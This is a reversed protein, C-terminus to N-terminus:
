ILSILLILWFCRRITDAYMPVKYSGAVPFRINKTFISLVYIKHQLCFKITSGTPNGVFIVLPISRQLNILKVLRTQDGVQIISSTNYYGETKKVAVQLLEKIYTNEACLFIPRSAITAKLEKRLMYNQVIKTSKVPLNKKVFLKQKINKVLRIFQKLTQVLIVPNAYGLHERNLFVASENIISQLSKSELYKNLLINKEQTKM